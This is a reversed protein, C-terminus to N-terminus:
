GPQCDESLTSLGIGGSLCIDCDEAHFAEGEAENPKSDRSM